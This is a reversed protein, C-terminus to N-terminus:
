IPLLATVTANAIASSDPATVRGRIVDVRQAFATRPVGVPLCVVAALLLNRLALRARM